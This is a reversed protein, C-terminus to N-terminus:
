LKIFFILCAKYGLQITEGRYTISIKKKAQTFNHFAKLEDELSLVHTNWTAPVREQSELLCPFAEAAYTAEELALFALAVQDM